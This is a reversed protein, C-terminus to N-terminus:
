KLREGASLKATESELELLFQERAEAEPRVQAIQANRSVILFNGVDGEFVLDDGGNGLDLINVPVQDAGVFLRLHVFLGEGERLLSELVGLFLQLQFADRRHVDHAGLSFNRPAILIQGDGAGAELQLFRQHLIRDGLTQVIGHEFGHPHNGGIPHLVTAICVACGLM